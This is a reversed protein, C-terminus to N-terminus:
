SYTFSWGRPASIYTLVGSAGVVDLVLDEAVGEINNGNRLVTVPNSSLSRAADRFYVQDGITPSAPLTANFSGGSSDLSQVLADLSFTFASTRVTSRTLASLNGEHFVDDGKYTFQTPSVTVTELIASGSALGGRFRILGDPYLDIASGRDTNGNNDLFTTGGTTNRYSNSAITVAFAGNTGIFGLGGVDLYYGSGGWFDAPYNVKLPGTFVANNSKAYSSPLLGAFRGADLQSGAGDLTLVKDFVDQATYSSAALYYSGQQGDLLDADVGSGAGGGWVPEGAGNVVFVQGTTGISDVILTDIVELAEKEAPTLVGAIVSDIEQDTYAKSAGLTDTDGQIRLNAEATLQSYNVADGPETGAAMNTVKEGNQDVLSVITPEGGDIVVTRNVGAGLTVSNSGATIVLDGSCGNIFIYIKDTSPVTLTGGAGSTKIVASRAEDPAYNTSTLATPGDVVVASTSAIAQELLSLDANLKVGWTNLNEGTAMLELRLLPSATSAM